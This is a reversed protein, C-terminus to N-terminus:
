PTGGRHEPGRGPDQGQADGGGQRHQAQGSTVEELDRLYVQKAREQGSRLEQDDLGADALLRLTGEYRQKATAALEAATPPPVVPPPEPTVEEVPQVPPEPEPEPEPIPTQETAFARALTHHFVFVVVPLLILALGLVLGSALLSRFAIWFFETVSDPGFTAIAAIGYAIFSVAALRRAWRLTGSNPTVMQQGVCYLLCILLVLPVFEHLDVFNLVTEM